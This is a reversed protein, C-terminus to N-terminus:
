HRVIPFYLQTDIEIFDDITVEGDGESLAAIFDAFDSATEVALEDPNESNDIATMPEIPVGTPPYYLALGDLQNGAGFLEGNLFKYFECSTDEGSQLLVCGEVDNKDGTDSNTSEVAFDGSLTLFLNFDGQADAFPYEWASRIDESSGILGVDGGDFYLSWTGTSENLKILAQDRVELEGNEGPVQATGITSILLSGDAAVGLGDIDESGQTLGVDAGKVRISFSGCGTADPIYEVIDSDDVEGLGPITFASRLTFILHGDPLLDFDDLNADDLGCASGDFVISFLGTAADLAVIDENKYVFDPAADDPYEIEDSTKFGLYILAPSPITGSPITGGPITGNFLTDASQALSDKASFFFISMLSLTVLVVFIMTPAVALPIAARQNRNLQNRNM